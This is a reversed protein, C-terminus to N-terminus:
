YGTVQRKNSQQAMLAKLALEAQAQRSGMDASRQAQLSNMDQGRATLMQNNINAERSIDQGRQTISGQYTLEANKQAMNVDQIANERTVEGQQQQGENVVRSQGRGEVGSGVTGRGAMAGALGTLASRATAGVQDKARAFINANAATSDPGRVQGLAPPPSGYATYSPAASSGSASAQAGAQSWANSGAGTLSNMISQMDSGGGPPGPPQYGPYKAEYASRTAQGQQTGAAKGATQATQVTQADRAAHWEPTYMQTPRGNIIQTNGAGAM